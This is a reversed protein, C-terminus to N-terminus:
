GPLTEQKLQEVFKDIRQMEKPIDIGQPCHENCQNCGTCHDAQRLKPVSRDYGVLFARRAEKYNADGKSQSVNGENVCKNYHLLVAPIDIAYPCPMCYKCDNCPITPYAIILEAMEELFDKDDDALPVLPAYTRINDQLHEMYTMGSLVTLVNEPSGAFRFAWSAVSDDPRRQKLRTIIHDPLNSLRGGLLPEMIVAPIGRKELEGYLYEANVNQATAHKWDVYNLQIQVFDWKVSDHMALVQDFVTVDGHFSWGLRRIRGAEREAILFDLIGNDIYRRNFVEMGGGGIAHLLYYDFYDTQLDEFSKRYMAISNERSSNAFNSLKTAIFLKERPHRKLAIGTAKESWGQVYVPSTDFYNVGHAIAYDVLENVADQDILDGNGDPSPITPWRMCGYGLLSVKDENGPLVRYTMRDTPVALSANGVSSKEPKSTCGYLTATTTAATLGVINLFERRNINKDQEKM